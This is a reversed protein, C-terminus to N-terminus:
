QGRRANPGLRADAFAALARARHSLAHKEAASMEGFTRDHGDPVFVPDYGFGNAGRPPWILTGEVEGRYTESRGEPSALCVVAVFRARRKDPTTAGAAVLKREVARMARVFDRDAGAWRASHVGPEGNLAGVALGSDDALAPLGSAIAAAVAKLRANEEFTLGSEEPEPLGLEAASRMALGFPALLEAIERLKDQNHSAVVLTDGRKLM